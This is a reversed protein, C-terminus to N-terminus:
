RPGLRGRDDLPQPPDIAESDISEPTIAHIPLVRASVLEMAKAGGSALDPITLLGEQTKIVVEGYSAVSVVNAGSEIRRRARTARV